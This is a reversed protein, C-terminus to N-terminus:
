RWWCFHNVLTLAKFNHPYM